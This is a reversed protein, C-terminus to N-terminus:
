GGHSEPEHFTQAVLQGSASKLHTQASAVELCLKSPRVSTGGRQRQDDTIVLEGSTYHSHFRQPVLRTLRFARNFPKSLPDFCRQCRQAARLRPITTSSYRDSFSCHSCTVRQSRSLPRHIMAPM